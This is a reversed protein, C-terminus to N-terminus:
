GDALLAPRVKEAILDIAKLRDPGLTHYLVPTKIGAEAFGHLREICETPTGAVALADVVDDPIAEIAADYRGEDFATRLSRTLALVRDGDLGAFVPRSTPDPIRRLYLAIVSKAANRAADGDEDVSFIIYCAIDIDSSARGAADLAARVHTMRDEIFAPSGFVSFLIGDARPVAMKLTQPGMTGFYLPVRNRVPTFWLRAGPEPLRFLDGEFTVQEGAIMRQIIDGAEALARMPRPNELGHARIASWAAGLGLVLRPGALEELDAIAMAIQAPHRTFPNVIGRAVEITETAQAIATAQVLLDRSHHAEALWVRRFGREEARQAVALNDRTASVSYLGIELKEFLASAM